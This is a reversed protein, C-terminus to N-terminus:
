QCGLDQMESRADRAPQGDPFRYGVEALTVCAEETKGLRGLARGLRYLAKPAEPGKPAASFTDLFARAAASTEGAAELAEGRKLGAEAALPSGPYDERFRAFGAAADAYEGAALADAAADFDAREGVALQASGDGAGEPATEGAPVTDDGSPVGGSPVGGLTTGEDLEAIDCDSELELEETKATLRQVESEIASVRDIVSGGAAVNGAGGTTSLERKLRQLEVHLVTLDQRIDALTDGRGPEQASAAGALGALLVCVALAIRRM